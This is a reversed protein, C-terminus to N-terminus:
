HELDFYRIGETRRYESYGIKGKYIVIAGHLTDARICCGGSGFWNSNHHTIFQAWTGRWIGLLGPQLKPPRFVVYFGLPKCVTENVVQPRDPLLVFKPLIVTAPSPRSAGTDGRDVSAAPKPDTRLKEELLPEELVQGAVRGRGLCGVVASSCPSSPPGSCRNNTNTGFGVLANRNNQWNFHIYQWLWLM